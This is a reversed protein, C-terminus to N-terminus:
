KYAFDLYYVLIYNEEELIDEESIDKESNHFMNNSIILNGKKYDKTNSLPIIVKFFSKIDFDHIYNKNNKIIQINKININMENLNYTKKVIKMITEFGIICFRFLYPINEINLFTFTKNHINVEKILWECIYDSYFNECNYEKYFRNTNSITKNKYCDLIDYMIYGYKDILSSFYETQNLPTNQSKLVFLYNYEYLIVEIPITYKKSNKQNLHNTVPIYKEYNIFFDTFDTFNTNKEYLINEMFTKNIIKTDLILETHYLENIFKLNNKERMEDSISIYYDVNNPKKDYINIKLVLPLNTKINFVNKFGHYLNGNFSIHQLENPFALLLENEEDFEKYKYKEFDINTIILPTTSKNLFTYSCVLPYIKVKDEKFYQDKFDFLVENSFEIYFNELNDKELNQINSLSLNYVFEELLDYNNKNLELLYPKKLNNITKIVEINDKYNLICKNFNINNIM